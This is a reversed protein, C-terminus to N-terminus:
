ARERERLGRRHRREAYDNLLAWAAAILLGAAAAYGFGVLLDHGATALAHGIM